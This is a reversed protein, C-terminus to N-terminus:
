ILKRLYLTYERWMYIKKNLFFIFKVNIPNNQGEKKKKSREKNQNSKKLVKLNSGRERKSDSVRSKSM